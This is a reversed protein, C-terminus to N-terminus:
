VAFPQTDAIDTYIAEIPLVCLVCLLGQPPRLLVCVNVCLCRAITLFLQERITECRQGARLAWRRTQRSM